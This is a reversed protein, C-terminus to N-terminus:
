EEVNILSIFLEGEFMDAHVFGHDRPLRQSSKSRRKLRRLCDDAQDRLLQGAQYLWFSHGEDVIVHCDLPIYEATRDVLAQIWDLLYEYKALDRLLGRGADTGECEIIEITM